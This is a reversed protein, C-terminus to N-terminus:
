AAVGISLRAAHKEEGRRLCDNRSAVNVCAAGLGEDGKRENSLLRRLWKNIGHISVTV